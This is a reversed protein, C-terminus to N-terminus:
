PIVIWLSTVRLDAVDRAVTYPKRRRQRYAVISPMLATRGGRRSVLSLRTSRPALDAAPDVLARRFPLKQSLDLGLQGRLQRGFRAELLRHQDSAGGSRQQPKLQEVPLRGLAVPGIM